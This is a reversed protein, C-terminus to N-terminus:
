RKEIRLDVPVGKTISEFVPSFLACERLAGEPADSKVRFTVRIQQYGKRVDPAVGTFGRLDIDGEVESEVEDLRIGRAAAHYVMAGTLCTVLASLLHEVPNPARDKGILVEPEDAEVQFRQKHPQEKGVGYPDQVETRSFGGDGSWRNSVKFKFRALEPQKGLQKITEGLAQVDIGNVVKSTTTTRNVM